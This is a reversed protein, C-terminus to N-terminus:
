FNCNKCGSEYLEYGCKPCLDYYRISQVTSKEIKYDCHIFVEYYTETEKLGDPIEVPDYSDKTGDTLTFEIGKKM